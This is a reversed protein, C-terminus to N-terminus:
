HLTMKILFLDNLANLNGFSTLFMQFKLIKTHIILTSCMFLKPNLLNLFLIIDKYHPQKRDFGQYKSLFPGTQVRLTYLKKM